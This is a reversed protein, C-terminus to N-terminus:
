KTTMYIKKSSNTKGIESMLNIMSLNFIGIKRPAVNSALNRHTCCEEEEVWLLSHSVEEHIAQNKHLYNEQFNSTCIANKM